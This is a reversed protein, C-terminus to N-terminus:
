NQILNLNVDTVDWNGGGSYGLSLSPMGDGTQIEQDDLIEAVANGPPHHVQLSREVPAINRRVPLM